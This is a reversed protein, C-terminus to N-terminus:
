SAGAPLSPKCGVTPDGYSSEEEVLGQRREERPAVAAPGELVRRRASCGQFIGDFRETNRVGFGAADDYVARGRGKLSNHPLAVADLNERPFGFLRLWLRLAENGIGV